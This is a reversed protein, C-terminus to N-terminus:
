GHHHMNGHKNNMREMVAKVVSQYDVSSERQAPEANYGYNMPTHTEQVYWAKSADLWEGTKHDTVWIETNNNDKWDQQMLWTIACGLDDFKYVENNAGGRVQATNFKDSIMMRCLDCSDRDFTVEAPGTAKEGGCAGLLLSLSILIYKIYKM